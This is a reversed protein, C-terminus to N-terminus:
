SGRNHTIGQAHDPDLNYDHNHLDLQECLTLPVNAARNDCFLNRPEIAPIHRGAQFLGPRASSQFPVDLWIILHSIRLQGVADAKWILLGVFHVDM